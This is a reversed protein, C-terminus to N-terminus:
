LGKLGCGQNLANWVEYQKGRYSWYTAEILTYRFYCVLCWRHANIVSAAIKFQDSDPEALVYAAIKSFSHM